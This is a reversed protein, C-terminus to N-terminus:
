AEHECQSICQESVELLTPDTKITRASHGSPLQNDHKPIPSVFGGTALGPGVKPDDRLNAAGMTLQLSPKQSPKTISSNHLFYALRLHTNSTM